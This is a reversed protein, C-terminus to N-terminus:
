RCLSNRRHCSILRTLLERQFSDEAPAVSFDSFSARAPAHLGKISGSFQPHSALRMAHALTLFSGRGEGRLQDGYTRNGSGMLATGFAAQEDPRQKNHPLGLAHGLEHTIGGIFISNHKGLSIRGYQGDRIIPKKLALNPIDLEPSDLQWATGHRANGGAYYPSKHTFVLKEADWTAMNCMIVITERDADIGAKRLTPLCEKRIKSGDQMGYDAFPGAGKVLHINIMKDDAYDLQITRAGFGNREMEKAYFSRIDEFIRTLRERYQAAPERDSPTWYVLHLTRESKRPGDAHWADLIARAQKAQQEISKQLESFAPSQLGIALFLLPILLKM